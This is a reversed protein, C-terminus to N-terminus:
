PLDRRTTELVSAAVVQDGNTVIEAPAPRSLFGMLSASIGYAGVNPITVLDGPEAGALDSRHNLVDAPTCLPGVVAAEGSDSGASGVITASIPPVRGIGSLGGVHHIGTDTIVFERGGSSKIETVQAILTGSDCTLYRGSEFAVVPAGDRWGPFLTDLADSVAARLNPYTPRVGDRGYPAAFGGGLDLLEVSIGLRDAFARAHSISAVIENILVTEDVVNSVPFFHLGVVDAGDIDLDAATLTTTAIDIGFQTATGTMRMASNGHAAPGNVRLLCRAVVDAETAAKAVRRLDDLSECSFTLVGAALATAIEGATKGPGTYLADAVDFGARIASSLEGTSSLEAHCGGRHLISGIHHNPNAKLSFYLRCPEPLLELLDSNAREVLEQRHIYVPTGYESTISELSPNM